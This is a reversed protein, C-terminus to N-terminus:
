SSNASTAAPVRQSLGPLQADYTRRFEGGTIQLAGSRQWRTASVSARPTAAFSTPIYFHCVGAIVLGLSWKLWGMHRRMQDLMTM